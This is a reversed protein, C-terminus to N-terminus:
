KRAKIRGFKGGDIFGGSTVCTPSNHNLMTEPLQMQQHPLNSQVSSSLGLFDNTAIKYPM